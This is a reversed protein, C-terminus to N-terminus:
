KSLPKDRGLQTPIAAVKTRQRLAKYVGPKTGHFTWRMPKLIRFPKAFQELGRTKAPVTPGNYGHPISTCGEKALLVALVLVLHLLYVMM